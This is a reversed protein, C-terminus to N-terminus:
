KVLQLIIEGEIHLLIVNAKSEALEASNYLVQRMGQKVGLNDHLM